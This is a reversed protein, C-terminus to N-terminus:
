DESYMRSLEDLKAKLDEPLETHTAHIVIQMKVRPKCPPLKAMFAVVEDSERRAAIQQVLCNLKNRRECYGILERSFESKTSHPFTEYDIGLAFALERLELLDFRKQLFQDLRARDDSTLEEPM